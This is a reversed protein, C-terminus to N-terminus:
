YTSVGKQNDLGRQNMYLECFLLESATCQRDHRVSTNLIGPEVPCHHLSLDAAQGATM